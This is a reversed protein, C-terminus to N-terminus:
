RTSFPDIESIRYDVTLEISCGTHGEDQFKTTNGWVANRAVGGFTHWTTSNEAVAKKINAEMRNILSDVDVDATRDSQRVFGQIEFGIQYGNAPPNGPCDQSQDRQSAGQLVIISSDQPTWDIADRNVREVDSADFDYGNSTTIEALRTLLEVAIQEPIATPM